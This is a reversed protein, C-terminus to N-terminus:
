RGAAAEPAVLGRLQPWAALVEGSVFLSGASVIV